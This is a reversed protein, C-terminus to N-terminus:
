MFLLASMRSCLACAMAAALRRRPRRLTVAAVRLRRLKLPREKPIAAPAMEVSAVAVALALWTVVVVEVLAVTPGAAAAVEDVPEAEDEAEDLEPPEDLPMVGM